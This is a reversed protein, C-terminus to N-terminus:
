KPEAKEASHSANNAAARGKRAAARCAPTACSAACRMRLAFTAPEFGAAPVVSRRRNRTARGRRASPQKKARRERRENPLVGSQYPPFVPDYGTSLVVSRRRSRTARGRLLRLRLAGPAARLAFVPLMSISVNELHSRPSVASASTKSVLGERPTPEFGEARVLRRQSRWSRSPLGATCRSAFGAFAAVGYRPAFAPQM